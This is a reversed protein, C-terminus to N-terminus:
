RRGSSVTLGGRFVVSDCERGSKSSQWERSRMGVRPGGTESKVLQIRTRSLAPTLHFPRARM